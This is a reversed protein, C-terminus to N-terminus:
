AAGWATPFLVIAAYASWIVGLNYYWLQEVVVVEYPAKDGVYGYMVRLTQLLTLITALGCHILGYALIVFVVADHATETVRLNATLLLWLLMAWQVAGIATIAGLNLMLQGGSGRRLRGPVLRMWLTGASLVVASAFMLWGNLDSHEPVMWEPSVTWLYFWGFLLSLYLTGNALLTVGMGWLGPGDFTRSHLPPEGPQTQADPAAAPHAGNEWSWRFLVILTAVTAIM